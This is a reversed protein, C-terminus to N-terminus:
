AGAMWQNIEDLKARNERELVFDEEAVGLIYQVVNEACNGTVSSKTGLLKDVRGIAGARAFFPDDHFYAAANYLGETDILRGDM